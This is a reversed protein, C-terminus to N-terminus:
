GGGREQVRTWMTANNDLPRRVLEPRAAGRTARKESPPIQNLSSSCPVIKLAGACMSAIVYLLASKPQVGVTSIFDCFDEHCGRREGRGERRRQEGAILGPRAAVCRGGTQEARMKIM